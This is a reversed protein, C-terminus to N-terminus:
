PTSHHLASDTVAGPMALGLPAGDSRERCKVAVKRVRVAGSCAGEPLAGAFASTCM